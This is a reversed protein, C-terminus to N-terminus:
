RAHHHLVAYEECACCDEGAIAAVKNRFRRDVHQKAEEFTMTPNKFSLGRLGLLIDFVADNRTMGHFLHSGPGYASLLVHDNTHNGSTWTVKTYNGLVMALTAGASGYFQSTAFPSEDVMASVVALAEAKKLKIGLYTEVATQVDLVSPNAGVKSLIPGYSSKMGSLLALGATSDFYAMPFDESGSGNLAPGGTAHDSTIVVLTEGDKMAFDIAVKVAEEFAIQDFVLGALDNGHAAHDVRGGEIQLLFGQPGGKLLDIAKAALEALTPVSAMSSDHDRDVTYPLHSDYFIGLAKGTKIASLEARNKAISFGQKAFEAYLDIKKANPHVNTRTQRKKGDFYRDGGGFLVDVGSKLHAEAILDEWGRNEMSVSFGSPTAHTMTTTTVLGTRMGVAKVVDTLPRLKTGDPFMNVQGNWIRRGSGWASAAASSDTVVSSLSRTDQLGTVVEDNELLSTWYSGSKGMLKQYADAMTVSSMAMGDAVCYIINKPRKKRDKAGTQPTFAMLGALASASGAAAAASLFSRRSWDM